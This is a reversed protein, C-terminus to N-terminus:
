QYNPQRQPWDRGPHGELKVVKRGCSISSQYDPRGANEVDAVWHLAWYLATAEEMNDCPFSSQLIGQDYWTGGEAPSLYRQQEHYVNVFLEVEPVAPWQGTQLAGELIFVSEKRCSEERPNVSSWSKLGELLQQPTM